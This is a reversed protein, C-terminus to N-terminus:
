SENNTQFESVFAADDSVTYELIITATTTANCVISYADTFLLPKPLLSIISGTYLPTDSIITFTKITGVKYDVAELSISLKGSLAGTVTVDKISLKRIEGSEPNNIGKGSFVTNKEDATIKKIKISM